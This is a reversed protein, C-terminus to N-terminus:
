PTRAAIKALEIFTGTRALGLGFGLKIQIVTVMTIASQSCARQQLIVWSLLYTPIYPM